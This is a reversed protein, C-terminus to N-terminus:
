RDHSIAKAYDDKLEELIERLDTDWAAMLAEPTKKALPTERAFGQDLVVRGPMGSEVQYITVHLEMTGVPQSANQFDGYLRNIVVEVNVDAPLGSGKELMRGFAGSQRMWARVPEALALEPRVIFGAYPDQKYSNTGTRYTFSRSQFLPSIAIRTLAVSNTSAVAAAPDTPSSFAFVQRRYAPDSQCGCLIAAVLMLALRKM